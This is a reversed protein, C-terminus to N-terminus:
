GGRSKPSIKPSGCSLRESARVTRALAAYEVHPLHAGPAGQAALLVAPADLAPQRVGRQGPRVLVHTCSAAPTGRAPDGYSARCRRASRRDSGTPRCGTHGATREFPDPPHEQGIVFTRSQRVCATTCLRAPQHQDLIFEVDSREERSHSAGRSRCPEVDVRRVAVADAIAAHKM